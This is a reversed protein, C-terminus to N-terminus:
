KVLKVSSWLSPQQEIQYDESLVAFHQPLGFSRNIRYTLGLRDFQEPDYGHLAQSSIFIQLNYSQPKLQVKLTLDDPSCLPHSEEPNRFHTLEGMQIGEFAEPLFFFHHCFRTNFGSTKVDRTDIFLEVSDRHTIEPYVVRKYPRHIEAYIELGEKNWGMALNAFAEEHSLASLEPLAYRKVNKSGLKPFNPEIYPCEFQIQFFNIPSFPTLDNM